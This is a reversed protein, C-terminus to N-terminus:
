AKHRCYSGDENRKPCFFTGPKQSAKMTSNHTPCTHVGASKEAVQARAPTQVPPEAGLDFLRDVIVKLDGARGEGEITVPFGRLQCTISFKCAPQAKKSEIDTVNSTNQNM